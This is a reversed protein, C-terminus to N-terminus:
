IAKHLRDTILLPHLEEDEVTVSARHLDGMLFPVFVVAESLPDGGKRGSRGYGHRSGHLVRRRDLQVAQFDLGRVNHDVANGRRRGWDGGIRREFLLDVPAKEAQASGFLAQDEVHRRGELVGHAGIPRPGTEGLDM